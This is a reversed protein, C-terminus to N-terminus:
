FGQQSSSPQPNTSFHVSRIGPQIKASLHVTFIEASGLFLPISIFLISPLTIEYVFHGFTKSPIYV